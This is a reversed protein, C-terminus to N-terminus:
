IIVIKINILTHISYRRYAMWPIKLRLSSRKICSPKKWIPELYIANVLHAGSLDAYRLDAFGFDVNAFNARQLNIFARPLADPNNRRRCLFGIIGATDGQLALKRAALSLYLSSRAREGSTNEINELAVIAHDVREIENDHVEARIASVIHPLGRDSSNIEIRNAVQFSMVESLQRSNLRRLHGIYHEDVVMTRSVSDAANNVLLAKAEALRKQSKTLKHKDAKRSEFHSSFYPHRLACDYM